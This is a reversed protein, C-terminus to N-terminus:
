LTVEIVPLPVDTSDSADQLNPCVPMNVRRNQPVLLICSTCIDYEEYYERLFTIVEWHNDTLECDDIKAM